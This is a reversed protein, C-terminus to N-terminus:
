QLKWLLTEDPDSPDECSMEDARENLACIATLGFDEVALTYTRPADRTAVLAGAGYDEALVVGDEACEEGSYSTEIGFSLAGQFVGGAQEPGVMAVIVNAEQVACRSADDYLEYTLPDGGVSVLRWAGEITDGPSEAGPDDPIHHGGGHGTDADDDDAAPEGPASELQSGSVAVAASSLSLMAGAPISFCRLTM